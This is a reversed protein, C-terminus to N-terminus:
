IYSKLKNLFQNFDKTTISNDYIKNYGYLMDTDLYEGHRYNITNAVAVSMQLNGGIGFSIVFKAESVILCDQQIQKLDPGTIGLAPITLDLIRDAPINNIIDNYISYVAKEGHLSYEKNMEIIREGMVVIKYKESLQRIIHWYQARDIIKLFYDKNIYRIKTTLVIYEKDLNLLLGKCLLHQLKPMIMPINHNKFLDSPWQRLYQGINLKYPYERFFLEGIENLFKLYEPNSNRYIRIVNLDYSIRIENFRDKVNDLQAKIFILDGFGVVTNLELVNM